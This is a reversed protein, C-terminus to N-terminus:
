RYLFDSLYGDSSSILKSQEAQLPQTEHELLRVQDQLISLANELESFCILGSVLPCVMILAFCVQQNSEVPQNQWSDAVSYSADPLYM